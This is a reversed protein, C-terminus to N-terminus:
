ISDKMISATNRRRTYCIRSAWRRTMAGPCWLKKQFSTGATALWQCFQTRNSRGSIQVLSVRTVARDVPRHLLM